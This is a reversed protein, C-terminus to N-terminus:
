RYVCAQHTLVTSSHPKLTLSYILNWNNQLYSRNEWARDCIHTWRVVLIVSSTCTLYVVLAHVIYNDILYSAWALLEHETYTGFGIAAYFHCITSGTAINIKSQLNYYSYYWTFKVTYFLFRYSFAQM